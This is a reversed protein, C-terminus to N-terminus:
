GPATSGWRPSGPRRAAGRARAACSSSCRARGPASRRARGRCCSAGVRRGPPEDRGAAGPGRAAAALRRRGARRGPGRRRPRGRRREVRVEARLEADAAPRGTLLGRVRDRLRGVGRELARMLDGTGVVDHWRALVEGRLLAGSRVAEDVEERGAAYARAADERLGAATAAQEDLAAAVEAVRAGLSDLAGALTRQVLAARAGADAALGDLWARVPALAAAPLLGAELGVEPVVLLEADELGQDALMAGLHGRVEAVAGPAVRDLVVSLATGRERAARLLDWPVADAYRAATTVFLWADAAALLQRALARNAEVVSDIDPADLLALGPPQAPTPALRLSGPAALAPDGGSTRSLGPLVRDDEFWRLDDPHCVLVPARTTPRLVGSPSVVAGVLSNVLTSKGAGTSGGVVMLLPADLARLRPLLYDDVQGALEERRAAPDPGDPTRGPVLEAPFPAARLADRLAALADPLASATAPATM